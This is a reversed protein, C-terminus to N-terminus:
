NLDLTKFLISEELLSVMRELKREGQFQTNNFIGELAIVTNETDTRSLLVPVGRANAADFLYDSPQRGGTLILCEPNSAFAALHQDTKDYRVVVAKSDFRELYPQGADSSIPAIVLHDCTTRENRDGKVIREAHLLDQAEQISFGNLIRDEPLTILPVGNIESEAQEKTPIDTAIIIQAPPETEPHTDPLGRSVFVVYDAGPISLPGAESEVVLLENPASDPIQEIQIPTNSSGPVFELSGFWRADERSRTNPEGSIARILRVPRGTFAFHRAIATAVGTKGAGPSDSTIALLTM